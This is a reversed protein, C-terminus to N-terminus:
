KIVAKRYCSECMPEYIDSSGLEIQQHNEHKKHTYFAPEGCCACIATLHKISTSISAIKEKMAFPKALYDMDLGYCWVNHNASLLQLTEFFDGHFYPEILFQVEDFFLNAGDPITGLDGVCSIPKAIVSRGDHSKVINDGYRTDFLPKFVIGGFREFDNILQTSKGAFMCGVILNIMGNTQRKM